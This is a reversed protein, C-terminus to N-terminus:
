PACNATQKGRLAELNLNSGLAERMQLGTIPAMKLYTGDIACVMVNVKTPEAFRILLVEGEYHADYKTKFAIYRNHAVCYDKVVLDTEPKLTVPLVQDVAEDKLFFGCEPYSRFVGYRGFRDSRHQSGNAFVTLKRAAPLEISQTFLSVSSEAHAVAFGLAIFISLM